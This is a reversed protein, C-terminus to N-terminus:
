ADEKNGKRFISGVLREKIFFLIGVYILADMAVIILLTLMYNIWIDNDSFPLVREIVPALFYSLLAIAVGSIAIKLSNINFIAEKSYDWSKYILFILLLVDTLGTAIAVGIGPDNKFILLGFIVSLLINSIVGFVMSYLYIREKKQPLLIETYINDALSYTLMMSSLAVLIWSADKYESSSYNGSILSTIQPALTTMTAIAPVAIFMTITFSYSLLNRYFYKNEKEYYYSARPMFVAYLSTIITIIIDVGKVGVSYAGVQAKSTDFFGLLFEDTQNYLTLAFSIFFLTVLPRLLPRFNYRGVRKFTIFKPLYLCNFISTLVTTSITIAAYIYVENEATETKRIVLFVLMASLAILLISRITIYFHKELAIYIWEFSFVGILFNVSLLFILEKAEFLDPISCVLSTMFGFSILTTIAQIIFFQQTLHSLKKKDNKVKACERIAINPISIKALILFYYVFTNAWTYLGFVNEGLARTIYPFTIFSLVTMTLTRILNIVVNARVTTSQNKQTVANSSQM